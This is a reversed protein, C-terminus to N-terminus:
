LQDNESPQPFRAAHRKCAQQAQRLTRYGEESKINREVHNGWMTWNLPKFYAHYFAQRRYPGVQIADYKTIKYLGSFWYDSRSGDPFREPKFEFNM